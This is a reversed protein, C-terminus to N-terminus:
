LDPPDKAYGPTRSGDLGAQLLGVTRACDKLAGVIAISPKWAFHNMLARNFVSPVIAPLYAILEEAITRVMSFVEDM